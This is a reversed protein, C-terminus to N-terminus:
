PHKYLRTYVNRDGSGDLNQWAVAFNGSSDSALAPVLTTNHSAATDVRFDASTANGQATYSQAYIGDGQAAITFNGSSDMAAAPTRQLDSTAGVQFAAGAALGNSSYRRAFVGAPTLNQQQAQWAVVFDGAPDMAIAPRDSFIGSQATDVMQPATTRPLGGASFAQCFIGLGTTMKLSNPDGGNDANWAVAFNGNGDMATKPIRLILNRSSAIRQPAARATGDAAYRRVYLHSTTTATLTLTREGWAVVFDGASDMALGIGPYVPSANIQFEGGQPTGDAAFRQGNIDIGIGGQDNSHWLVVFSGDGAMAVAPAFHISTTNTNVQFEGGQPSGSADFRQAFIGVLNGNQGVSDWAVVSSGAANRAVAPAEQNGSTYTNARMPGTVAAPPTTNSQSSSGSSAAGSGGGGCAALTLTAAFAGAAIALRVRTM